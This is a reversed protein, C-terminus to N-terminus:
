LREWQELCDPCRWAVTSDKDRDYIAIVRRFHTAGGFHERHTEPIPDGIWSKGCKPCADLHVEDPIIDPETKTETM